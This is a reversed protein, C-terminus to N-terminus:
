RKRIFPVEGGHEYQKVNGLYFVLKLHENVEVGVQWFSECQVPKLKYNETQVKGDYIYKIELTVGEDSEFVQGFKHPAWFIIGDCQEGDALELEDEALMM